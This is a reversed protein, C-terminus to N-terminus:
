LGVGRPILGSYPSRAQGMLDFGHDTIRARAAGVQAQALELAAKAETATAATTGIFYTPPEGPVVLDAEWAWDNDPDPFSINSDNFPEAIPRWVQADETARNLALRWYSRGGEMDAKVEVAGAGSWVGYDGGPRVGFGLFTTVRYARSVWRARVTGGLYLYQYEIGITRPGSQGFVTTTNYRTEWM